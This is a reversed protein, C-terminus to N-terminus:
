RVTDGLSPFASTYESHQLHSLEIFGAMKFCAVAVAGLCSCARERQTEQVRGIYADVGSRMAAESYSVTAFYSQTFFFSVSLLIHGICITLGSASPLAGINMCKAM